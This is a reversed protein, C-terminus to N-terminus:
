RLKLKKFQKETYKKKGVQFYINGSRDAKPWVSVKMKSLKKAASVSMFAAFTKAREMNKLRVLVYKPVPKQLKKLMRINKEVEARKTKYIFETKLVIEPFVMQTNHKRKIYDVLALQLVDRRGGHLGTINNLVTLWEDEAFQRGKAFPAVHKSFIRSLEKDTYQHGTRKGM